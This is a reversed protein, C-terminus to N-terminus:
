RKLKKIDAIMEEWAVIKGIYLAAVKAPSVKVKLKLDAIREEYQKILENKTM